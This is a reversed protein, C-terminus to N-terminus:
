GMTGYTTALGNIAQFTNARSLAGARKNNLATIADATKQQGQLQALMGSYMTQLGGLAGLEGSSMSVGTNSASQQIQANRIALERQKQKLTNRDQVKQSANSVANAERQAKGAKREEVASGVTAVAIIGGTIAM